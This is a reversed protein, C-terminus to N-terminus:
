NIKFQGQTPQYEYASSKIECAKELHQKQPYYSSSILKKKERKDGCLKDLGPKGIQFSLDWCQQVPQLRPKMM